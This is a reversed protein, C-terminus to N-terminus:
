SEFTLDIQIVNIIQTQETKIGTDDFGHVSIKYIGDFVQRGDNNKQDWVIQAEQRPELVIDAQSIVPSFIVMGSLGTVKFGYKDEFYLPTSGSNVITVSVPEGKKYDSKETFVTLSPGEVYTVDSNDRIDALVFTIAAGAFIGVILAIKLSNPIM